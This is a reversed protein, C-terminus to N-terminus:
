LKRRPAPSSQPLEYPLPLPVLQPGDLSGLRVDHAEAASTQVIALLDVGGNPSQAANVVTGCAQDGFVGSYLRTGAALAGADCHWAYLREKLRGLYQTRAIIEQGTYCGKDFSIGQLADLNATQAVFLDQTASTIVPLGARVTLWNWTDSGAAQAHAGLRTRLDPADILPTIVLLRDRALGLVSTSGHRLVMGPGPVSGWIERATIDVTPGAIGVIAVSDSQDTVTVKARLVYLSLRKRVSEALDAPMVARYGEEGGWLVITALMRGKPSNYSTHQWAGASVRRVDNSLQGQLFTTADQGAIALVSLEPLDCYVDSALLSGDSKTTSPARSSPLPTSAM